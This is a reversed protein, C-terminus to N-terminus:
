LNWKFVRASLFYIVQMNKIIWHHVQIMMATVYDEFRGDTIISAPDDITSTPTPPPTPSMTPIPVPTSAESEFVSTTCISAPTESNPPSTPRPNDDCEIYKCKSCNHNFAM